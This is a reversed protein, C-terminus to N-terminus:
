VIAVTGMEREVIGFEGSIMKDFPTEVLIRVGIPRIEDLVADIMLVIQEREKVTLVPPGGICGLGAVQEYLDQIASNLGRVTLYPFDPVGKRLYIQPLPRPDIVPPVFDAALPPLAAAVIAGGLGAFFTRRSVTPM